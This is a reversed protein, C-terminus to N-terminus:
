AFIYFAGLSICISYIMLVPMMDREMVNLFAEVFPHIVPVYNEKGAKKKFTRLINLVGYVLFMILVIVLWAKSSNRNEKWSDESSM